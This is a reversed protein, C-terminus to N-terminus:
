FSSDYFVFHWFFLFIPFRQGTASISIYCQLLSHHCSLWSLHLGSSLDWSFCFFLTKLLFILSRCVWNPIIFTMTGNNKVGMSTQSVSEFHCWTNGSTERASGGRWTQVVDTSQFSRMEFQFKCKTQFMKLTLPGSSSASGSQLTCNMQDLVTMMLSRASQQHFHNPM